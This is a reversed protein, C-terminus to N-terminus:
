TFAEVVVVTVNDSAGAALTAQILDEVATTISEHAMLEQIRSDSVMRTLGDSCLLFRDGARVRDRFVDIDLTPEGGVARTIASSAEGEALAGSEALSHDRTLQELRGDRLRYARSDGAWLVACRTARVLLAVVTSGSHVPNVPRESMRVLERNVDRLRASVDNVLQEFSADPIFDALADCVMRSAVEGDSHGGLGDAVAWLGVEPRELFSDQNVQRAKGVDTAGASRFRPPMPGDVVLMETQASVQAPLARVSPWDHQTWAGDLLAAFGEPNPLGKAILCSPEVISSGETWWLGLPDYLAGLRQALLQEFLAGLRPPTGLPLHWRRTGNGGLIAAAEPDGVVQADSLLSELVQSLRAVRGDFGDFDIQEDALTDVALREASDFFAELTTAAAVINTGMPLESVFTLHFYRGVRDVSPVMVGIVPSPGFTGAACAFRWSPSTLYVDLWRDGLVARSSAMCEQLWPDWVRVFADPVRRRLFDGHSPLKGYFGVEIGYVPSVDAGDTLMM